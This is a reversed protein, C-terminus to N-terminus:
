IEALQVRLRVFKRAENAPLPLRVEVLESSGDGRPDPNVVNPEENWSSWVKLDDSVEVIFVLDQALSNRYFRFALETQASPPEEEGGSEKPPAPEAFVTPLVGTAPEVPSIGFAYALLNRIGDGSADAEPTRLHEPVDEPFVTAAWGEYAAPDPLVEIQLIRGDVSGTSLNATHAETSLRLPRSGDYIKYTKGEHFFAGDASPVYFKVDANEIDPIFDQDSDTFLGGRYTEGALLQPRDLFINVGNQADLSTIFPAASTVRLVDNESTIPNSFNPIFASIRFAFDLGASPTIASTTLIAVDAGPNGPSVKGSGQIQAITGSGSLAATEGLVVAYSSAISGTVRLHGSHVWTRGTYSSNGSLLLQGSELAVAGSGSVVGAFESPGQSRIELLRGNTNLNNIRVGGPGADWFQSRGLTLPANFVQRDNDYNTIGGRGITLTSTGGFTFPDNTAITSRFYIGRLNHNANVTVQGNNHATAANFLVYRDSPASAPFSLGWAGRNNINTSSSGVWTNSPNGVVRLAFGDSNMAQNAANMAATTAIMSSYNYNLYITSHTALLSLEPTGDPNQWISLFPSSSDGAQLQVNTRATCIAIQTSDSNFEAALDVAEEVARPSGNTTSSRGYLISLLGKYNSLSNGTSTSHLDLVGMRFINEPSIFQSELVGVALDHATNTYNTIVLGQNLNRIEQVGQSVQVQGTNDLIRVGTTAENFNPYEYHQATLFHKPSLLALGKYSSAAHTQTSWAVGSWDLGAGVFNPSSNPVPQAPFGSSFRDHVEPSYESIQLAHSLTCGLTAFTVIVAAVRRFGSDISRLVM